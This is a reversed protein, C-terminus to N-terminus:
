SQFDKDSYQYRKGFVVSCIINSIANTLVQKLDLPSNNAGRSLLEDSLCRVEEAVNDQFRTKGIGFDRFTSLTFRRQSRWMSGNVM